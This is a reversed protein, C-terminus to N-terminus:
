RSWFTGVTPCLTLGGTKEAIVRAQREESEVFLPPGIRKNTRDRTAMFRSFHMAKFHAPDHRQRERLTQQPMMELRKVRIRHRALWKMTEARYKEIRATVILPIPDKRPLFKKPRANRIFDLYREGDDDQDPRCDDCLIGDFDIAMGPTFTSNFLNWEYYNPWPVWEGVIEPTHQALPNVFCVLEKSGTFQPHQEVFKAVLPRLRTLSNGTMCNDDVVLLTGQHRPKGTDLRWGHGTDVIDRHSTHSRIMFLPLHLASAIKTAPIMGTRAHGAIAIVDTPIRHLLEDVVDFLRRETIWKPKDRFRCESCSAVSSDGLQKWQKRNPICTGPINVAETKSLLCEHLEVGNKQEVVKGVHSCSDTLSQWFRGHVRHSRRQRPVRKPVQKLACSHCPIIAMREEKGAISQHRQPACLRRDRGSRLPVSLLHQEHNCEYVGITRKGGCSGCSENHHHKGLYVCSNTSSVNQTALQVSQVQEGDVTKIFGPGHPNKIKKTLM